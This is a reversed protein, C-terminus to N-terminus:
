LKDVTEVKSLASYKTKINDYIARANKSMPRHQEDNSLYVSIAKILINIMDYLRIYASLLIMIKTGKVEVDYTQGIYVGGFLRYCPMNSDIHVIVDINPYLDNVVKEVFFFSQGSWEFPRGIYNM